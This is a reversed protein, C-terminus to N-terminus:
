FVAPAFLAYALGVIAGLVIVTGGIHAATGAISVGRRYIEAIENKDIDSIQKVQFPDHSDLRQIKQVSVQLYPDRFDVVSGEIVQGNRLVVKMKARDEVLKLLSADIPMPTKDSKGTEESPKTTVPIQKYRYCGTASFILPSILCVVVTKVHPGRRM